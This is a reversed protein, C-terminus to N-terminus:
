EGPPLNLKFNERLFKNDAIMKAIEEVVHAELRSQVDDMPVADSAGGSSSEKADNKHISEEGLNVSFRFKGSSTEVNEVPIGNKLAPFRVTIGSLPFSNSSSAYGPLPSGDVEQSIELSAVANLPRKNLQLISFIVWSVSKYLNRIVIM